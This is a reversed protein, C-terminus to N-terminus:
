FRRISEVIYSWNGTAVVSFSSFPLFSQDISSGSIITVAKGNITLVLDNDGRNILSLCVGDVTITANGTEDGMDAMITDKEYTYM